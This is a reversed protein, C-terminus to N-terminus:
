LRKTQANRRANSTRAFGSSLENNSVHRRFAACAMVRLVIHEPVQKAELCQRAADEGLSRQLTLCEEVLRALECNGRREAEGERDLEM